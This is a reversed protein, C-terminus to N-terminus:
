GDWAPGHISGRRRGAIRVEGVRALGPMEELGEDTLLVVPKGRVVELLIWIPPNCVTGRGRILAQEQERGQGCVVQAIKAQAPQHFPELLCKVRQIAHFLM